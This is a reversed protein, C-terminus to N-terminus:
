ERRLFAAASVLTQKQAHGRIAGAVGVPLNPGSFVAILGFCVSPM